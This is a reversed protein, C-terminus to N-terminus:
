IINNTKNQKNIGRLRGREKEIKKMVKDGNYDGDM